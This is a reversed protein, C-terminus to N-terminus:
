EIPLQHVLIIDEAREADGIEAGARPEIGNRTQLHAEIGIGVDAAPEGLQPGLGIPFGSSFLEREGIPLPSPHPGGKPRIYCERGEGAKRRERGRGMPSLYPDPATIPTTMASSTTKASITAS